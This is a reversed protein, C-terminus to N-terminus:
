ELLTLTVGRVDIVGPGPVDTARLTLQGRGKPLTVEGLRWPKFDKVFSESGRDARDHEKGYLPPDHAETVKGDCAADLFSLEVTAGVNAPACTYHIVAEYRGPTAVEVHWTIRDSTNTWGTFFSCNPAKASRVVHGHEVGDRAPLHTIPFDRYGVPFPREDDTNLESLVDSRWRDVAEILKAATDRQEDAVDKTQEPDALM